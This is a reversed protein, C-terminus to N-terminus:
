SLIPFQRRINPNPFVAAWLPPGTMSTSPPVSIINVLSFPLGMTSGFLNNLGPFRVCIGGVSTAGTTLRWQCYWNVLISCNQTNRHSIAMITVIEQGYYKNPSCRVWRRFGLNEFLFSFSTSLVQCFFPLIPQLERRELHASSCGVTSSIIGNADSMNIHRDIGTPHGFFSLNTGIPFASIKFQKM